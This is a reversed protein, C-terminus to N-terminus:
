QPALLGLREVLVQLLALLNVNLSTQLRALPVVLVAVLAIRGLDAAIPDHEQPSAATPAAASLPRLRAALGRGMGLRHVDARLQALVINRELSPGHTYPDMPTHTWPHIPGHTWPSDASPATEWPSGMCGHVSSSI